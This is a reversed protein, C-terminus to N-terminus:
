GMVFDKNVVFDEPNNNDSQKRIPNFHGGRAINEDEKPISM